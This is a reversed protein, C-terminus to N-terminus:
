RGVLAQFVFEAQARTNVFVLTMRAAKIRAYIEAMAHRASHGAWPLRM